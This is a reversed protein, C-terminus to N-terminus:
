KKFISNYKEQLKNYILEEFDTEIKEVQNLFLMLYYNDEKDDWNKQYTKEKYGNDQRFKNLINKGMYLKYIEDINLSVKKSLKVFSSINFKKTKLSQQIFTEIQEEIPSNDIKGYKFEDLLLDVHSEISNKNELLDSVGFHLIDILELRLQELNLEEKKWWKWPIYNMMESCEVVWARYWPLKITKWNPGKILINLENQKEFIAKFMQQNTLNKSFIIKPKWKM